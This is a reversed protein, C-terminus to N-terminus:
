ADDLAATAKAVSMRDPFHGMQWPAGELKQTFAIKQRLKAMDLRYGACLGRRRVSLGGFWQM